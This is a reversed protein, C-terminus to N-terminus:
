RFGDYCCVGISVIFHEVNAACFIIHGSTFYLELSNISQILIVELSDVIYLFDSNHVQKYRYLIGCLNKCSWVVFCPVM